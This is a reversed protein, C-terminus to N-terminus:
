GWVTENQAQNKWRNYWMATTNGYYQLAVTVSLTVVRSLAAPGGGLDM